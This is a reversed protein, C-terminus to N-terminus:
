ESNLEELERERREYEAIEAELGKRVDRRHSGDPRAGVAV